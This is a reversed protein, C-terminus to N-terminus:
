EIGPANPPAPHTRLYAVAAETRNAVGLKRFISALHFKVSHVTVGLQAAMQSNTLGQATMALVESERPSLLDLKNERSDDVDMLRGDESLV